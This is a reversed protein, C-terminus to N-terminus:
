ENSDILNPRVRVTHGEALSMGTKPAKEIGRLKGAHGKSVETWSWNRLVRQLWRVGVVTGAPV